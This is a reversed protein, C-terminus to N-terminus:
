RRNNGIFRLDCRVDAFTTQARRSMADALAVSTHAEAELMLFLVDVRDRLEDFDGADEFDKMIAACVRKALQKVFSKESEFAAAERARAQRGIEREVDKRSVTQFKGVKPGYAFTGVRARDYVWSKTRNALDAADAVLMWEETAM